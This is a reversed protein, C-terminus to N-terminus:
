NHSTPPLEARQKNRLYKATAESRCRVHLKKFISALHNRVTGAAISTKNAIEKNSLGEALLELIEAERSTLGADPVVTPTRFSQVLMRAIESTMPAGGARVEAIAQIIQEPRFRKLIYGCAGAKLAQFILNIDQYVTVMIVQVDPMKETLRATCNIGSEDPLHIDMLVVDPQHKPVEVLADRSTSCACVCRYGPASDVLETLMKRMTNNDEIIAVTTM